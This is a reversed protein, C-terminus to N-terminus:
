DGYGSEPEFGDLAEMRGDIDDNYEYDDIDLSDFMQQANYNEEKRDDIEDQTLLEQYHGKVQLTENIYAEDNLLIIDFKRIQYDHYPKYYLNFLYRIMKIILHCLEYKITQQENYELLKNFNYIIYFIYILDNNNLKNFDLINLYHRNFNLEINNPINKNVFLNTIIHNTNKFILNNDNKDSIKINKFKKIFENIIEKENNNYINNSVLKNVISHIISQSSVLLQKLNSIRNRIINLTINYFENTEPMKKQYKSNINYINYYQNEYGLLMINDKISLEIKLSAINKTKKLEKEKESYGLYQLTISDYYVYVDNLKDRYYLVDINFLPHNRAINIKNDSSLINLPTKLELGLYDHDIIYLTEKLYLTKNEIKIKNGLIKIINNIFYDVYQELNNDTKEVYKKMLGSIINLKKNEYEIRKEQYQKMYNIHELAENNSIKEINKELLLLEKDTPNNIDIGVCIDKIEKTNNLCYKNFLNRLNVLKIKNIYEISDNNIDKKIVKLLQNFSNNCLKCVLDNTKFEWSHLKGDPCITLMNLNGNNITLPNINLQNTKLDCKETINYQIDHPINIDVLEIKKTLFSIKQTTEDIKINKLAKKEIKKLLDTNNFLNKLKMNIRSSVLEYLFIKNEEFNAEMISNILDIITNIISKQLNILYGQLDEKKINTINYLWLSNSVMIGSMYYITYALLPIKIIDIKESQSIRLFLGSFLSKGIKDFIFYNYKKDEKFGLLLGENLETIIILMIYVMINNYKIIKFYDTEDSRTLFIDDKLEFFFLNTLNKNIGYKNSFLEIRNKPQTRLWETHVLILDIVDKIVMRRKLKIVPINGIYQSLNMSLAFNEINKEINKITRKYKFYKPLDELNHSVVLSTTLFTDLEEVFTGDVIFKQIQVFENCSKCIYDGRDNLKIYQKIFDFISQNFEDTKKSMKMINRWKIYHNCIPERKIKDLDIEIEKKKLDIINKNDKIREISPLKIIDEKNRSITLDTDDPKIELEQIKNVIVKEIIENKLKIDQNLDFYNKTYFKLLNNLSWINFNNKDDIYLNMKLKVMDVYIKYIESIMIEINNKVDNVNYNIYTNLKPIDTTNDFIWYYLEKNKSLFTKEIIKTFAVFGNKENFIKKTDILKTTNFCELPLNSPNWIIGVVNMDINNNGSRLELPVSKKNKFNTYRIGQITKSPRIKIGDKSFHKFNVYSYKRVDELDILLDYDTVNDSMELKSIIKIEEYDNYLTAMRPDLPKYFLKDTELKQKPNKELLPSYYNKINNMKNIIYKIKTADREKIDITEVLSEPDYKETDKHYRLFEETIPVIINNSFLYDVYDKNEKIILETQERSSILYNYIDEVDISDLKNLYLFKQIIMFDVMKKESSVIIDIYKYEADVLEEKTLINLINKKDEKIYIQKLILTKIINNFNDKIIFYDNIYDEGLENVLKITSEYKLPNNSLIIKIKDMSKLQILSLINKIDNYFSILKSNTESNYFHQIQFVSDKQYKSAEIINTIYLDRNGTYYYAIGLYIYFACYRKIINIITDFYNENNIYELIYKKTITDIFQKIYNIINNQFKVFNVDSILKKFANEKNLFTYFNDLIGDFLDDIQNIYM